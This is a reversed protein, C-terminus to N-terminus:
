KAKQVLPIIIVLHIIIVVRQGQGVGLAWVNREGPIGWKGKGFEEGELGPDLEAM